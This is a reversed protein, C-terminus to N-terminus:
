GHLLGAEARGHSEAELWRAIKAPHNTAIEDIGLTVAQTLQERTNVLWAVASMGADHIEQVAQPTLGQWGSYIVACGLATARTALTEDYGHVILGRPVNPIADAFERLVDESFGSLVIRQSLESRHTLLTTLPEVALPDKVEVQIPANVADLVETFTPVTEGGARLRKIASLDLDNVRGSGDTTRDVTADHM